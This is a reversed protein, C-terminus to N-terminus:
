LLGVMHTPQLPEPLLVPNPTVGSTYEGQVYLQKDPEAKLAFVAAFVAPIMRIKFTVNRLLLAAGVIADMRTTGLVDFNVIV